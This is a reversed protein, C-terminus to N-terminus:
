PAHKEYFNVLEGFTIPYYADDSITFPDFGLTEELETVLMAFGLSDLGSDLLVMDDDVKSIGAYNVERKYVEDFVKTITDRMNTEGITLSM